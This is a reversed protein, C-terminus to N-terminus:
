ISNDCDGSLSLLAGSQLLRTFLLPTDQLAQVLKTGVLTTSRAPVESSHATSTSARVGLATGAESAGKVIFHHGSPPPTTRLIRTPIANSATPIIGPFASPCCCGIRM